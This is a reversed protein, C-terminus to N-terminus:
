SVLTGEKEAAKSYYGGYAYYSEKAPVGTLVLGLKEAPCAGLVRRLEHLTPRRVMDLRSVLLLGDVKASLVVADGVGLLPAADVLVVDFRDRLETLIQTVARTGVFDGPDPPVPGAVLVEVPDARQGPQSGNRAGDPVDGNENRKRFLSRRREDPTVSIPVLAEELSARGLAVDTLGPGEELGFFRHVTPRRLDLDVLAVRRGFRALALGLNITTTSKGEGQLGSTVMVTRIDREFTAFELGTRLMRFAEAAFGRPETLMVLQRRRRQRRSPEPLRALLPLEITNAVEETSRIRTDLTHWLFALGIGFFLGLGLAIIATRVPRPQVQVAQEAQRVVATNQAQLAALTRLEDRRELLSSYGGASPSGVGLPGLQNLQASVHQVAANIASTDLERRYLTFQRAYGNVLRVALARNTNRVKFTMLDSNSPGVVDSHALLYEPATKIGLAALTREAVVPEKALDVQTQVFRGPDEYPSPIGSLAAALDQRKVLVDASAQYVHQQRLSFFVGGATLLVTLLVIVWLRLRLIQLYDRLTHSGERTDLLDM